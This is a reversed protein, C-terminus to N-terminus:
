FEIGVVTRVWLPGFNDNPAPSHNVDDIRAYVGTSWWFKGFNVMATPGLFSHPGLSFSRPSGGDPFEGRLWYELGAHFSPSFQYTAGATPNIVWDKEIGDWGWEHEGWLNVDLTLDGIRRELIVKAEIEFEDTYEVLEGYLAVDIPWDGQEALRLRLREKFGTGETLKALSQPQYNSGPYPQFAVYVGLELRDTIGYEFETQSQTALYSVPNGTKDSIAKVPVLDVYEEVEGEGEGLTGYGYTFPLPRPNAFAVGGAFFVSAGFAAAALRSVVVSARKM